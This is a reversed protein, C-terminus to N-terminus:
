HLKSCKKRGCDTCKSYTFVVDFELYNDYYDKDYKEKNDKGYKEDYKENKDRSYKETYHDKDYENDKGYIDYKEKIRFRLIDTPFWENNFKSLKHSPIFIIGSKVIKYYGLCGRILAEGCICVTNGGAYEIEITKDSSCCLASATFYQLRDPCVYIIRNHNDFNVDVDCNVRISPVDCKHDKDKYKDKDKDKYKEKDEYKNNNTKKDYYDREKPEYRDKEEYLLDFEEDVATKTISAAKTNENDIIEKKLEDIYGLLKNVYNENLGLEIEDNKM